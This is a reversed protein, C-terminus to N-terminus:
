DEVKYVEPVEGDRVLSWEDGIDLGHKGACQHCLSVGAQEQALEAIKEPDTEDTEVTVSINAWSTLPVNYKPM